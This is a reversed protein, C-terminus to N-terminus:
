LDALVRLYLEIDEFDALRLEIGLEDGFLDGHLELAPNGEAAGHLTGQLGGHFETGFADTDTTSAAEATGVDGAGLAVAFALHRELGEADREIVTEGFCTGNVSNDAYFAPDVFLFIVALRTRVTAVAVVTAVASITAIAAASVTALASASVATGIVARM